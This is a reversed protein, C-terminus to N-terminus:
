AATHMPLYVRVTTGQGVVSSVDMFGHSQRVIGYVTSLGLGTGKGAQKTTFFPEFMRALTESSMGEGTDSIALVVYDGEAVDKRMATDADVVAAATEVQVPGGDSMADRANITLNMLVQEIQGVDAWVELPMPALDLEVQVRTGLARRIMGVTGEIVGNLDLRAPTIPQQRSFALLQRTLRHGSEAAKKIEALDHAHPSDAATDELLLDSFGLIVSLVNNFDHAIGGAMQGLSDMKQAQQLQLELRKRETVDIVIGTIGIPTAHANRTVRGKSTIWRFTGDPWRMRFDVRYRADHEIAQAFARQIAPVDDPHVLELAAAFSTQVPKPPLGFMVSALENWRTAYDLLDVEWIGAGAADLADSSRTQLVQLETQLARQEAHRLRRQEAERLEREIAPILRALRGKVLFDAAGAQLAAVAADEGITGSLMIFPLEPHSEKTLTLAQLGNFNPLRYDSLVIHWDERALAARMDHATQVRAVHVDYGGAKLEALLLDADQDSDEVMLLRLTKPTTAPLAMSQKDARSLARM